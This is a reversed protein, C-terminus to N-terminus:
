LKIIQPRIITFEYEKKRLFSGLGDWNSHSSLYLKLISKTYDAKQWDTYERKFNISILLPENNEFEIGDRSYKIGQVLYFSYPEDIQSSIYDRWDKYDM